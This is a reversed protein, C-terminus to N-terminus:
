SAIPAERTVGVSEKRGCVKDQKSQEKRLAWYQMAFVVIAVTVMTSVVISIVLM